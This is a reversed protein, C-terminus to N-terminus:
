LRIQNWLVTVDMQLQVRSLIEYPDRSTWAIDGSPFTNVGGQLPVNVKKPIAKSAMKPAALVM